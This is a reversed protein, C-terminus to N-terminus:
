LQGTTGNTGGFKIDKIKELFISFYVPVFSGAIAYGSLIIEILDLDIIKLGKLITGAAIWVACFIQSLFSTQKAGAM